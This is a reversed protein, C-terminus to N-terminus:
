KTKNWWILLAVLVAVAVSSPSLAALFGTVNAYVTNAAIGAQEGLLLAVLVLVIVAQVLLEIVRWVIAAIKDMM